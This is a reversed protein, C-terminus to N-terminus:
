LLHNLLVANQHRTGLYKQSLFPNDHGQAQAVMKFFAHNQLKQGTDSRNSSLFRNDLILCHSLPHFSSRRDDLYM